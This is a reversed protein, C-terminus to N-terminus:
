VVQRLDPTTISSGLDASDNPSPTASGESRSEEPTSSEGDSSNSNASSDSPPIAHRAVEEANADPDGEAPREPATNGVIEESGLALNRVFDNVRKRSWTPQAHQVSIALLATELIPNAPGDAADALLEAFENWELGTVEHILIPDGHKYEHVFPFFHGGVKFGPQDSM